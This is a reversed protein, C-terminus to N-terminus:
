GYGIPGSQGLSPVSRLIDWLNEYTEENLMRGGKALYGRNNSLSQNGYEQEYDAVAAGDNAGHKELGFMTIQNGSWGGDRILYIGAALNAIGTGIMYAKEM